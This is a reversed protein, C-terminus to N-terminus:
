PGGTAVQEIVRVLEDMGSVRIQHRNLITLMGEATDLEIVPFGRGLLDLALGASVGDREVIVADPKLAAVRDGGGPLHPDLRVVDIDPLAALGAEVAMSFISTGCIVIRQLHNM